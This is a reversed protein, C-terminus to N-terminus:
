HSKPTQKAEEFPNDKVYDHVAKDSINVKSAERLKKVWYARKERKKQDLVSKGINDKAEDYSLPREAEIGLVKILHWGFKSQIPESVAGEQLALVPIFEKPTDRKTIWGLEGADKVTPTDVSNQKVLDAWPEGALARDRVAKATAPDAMVIHAVHRREPTKLEAKHQEFYTKVDDDTVKVDKFIHDAYLANEMLDEQYRRVPDAVQPVAAINRRKVELKVLPENVGARLQEDFFQQARWDPLAAMMKIEGESPFDKLLLAGGDWSAVVTDASTKHLASLSAASHDVPAVAVHYRTWLENSFSARNEDLMRGKLIAEIKSRVSKYAPQAITTRDLLQVVNWGGKTRFAPSIEGPELPFVVTEWAPEMTGWGVTGLRGGHMKSPVTSCSRAIEEFNGGGLIMGRVQEAEDRSEVVIEQMVYLQKTNAEWADHIQEETPNARGETESQVLYAASKQDAYEETAKRIDALDQIGLNYAEQVLLRQDVIINIFRRLEQEGGLFKEHGGHRKVFGERLEAVTLPEGNIVALPGIDKKSSKSKPQQASATATSALATILITILIRKSTRM